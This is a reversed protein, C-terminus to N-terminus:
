NTVFWGLQWGYSGSKGQLSSFAAVLINCSGPTRSMLIDVVLEHYIAVSSPFHAEGVSLKRRAGTSTQLLPHGLM